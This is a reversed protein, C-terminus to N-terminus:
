TSEGISFPCTTNNAILGSYRPSVIPVYGSTKLVIRCKSLKFAPLFSSGFHNSTVNPDAARALGARAASQKQAGARPLWLAETM